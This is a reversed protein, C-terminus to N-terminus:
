LDLMYLINSSLQSLVEATDIQPGSEFIELVPITLQDPVSASISLVLHSKDASPLLVIALERENSSFSLTWALGASHDSDRLKHPGLTTKEQLSARRLWDRVSTKWILISPTSRQDARSRSAALRKRIEETTDSRATLQALSVAKIRTAPDKTLAAKCLSILRPPLNPNVILPLKATIAKYLIYKNQTDAEEKFIPTRMILDHLVAGVQYINLAEFGQPGPLEDRTLYEPSSYQATAVFRKTETQDTGNGETHEIRRLVGLDLLKLKSFTPDVVINAPKIDRHVLGREQLFLVAEVLQRLLDEVQDDRVSVLAKELNQWPCLEMLLYWTNEESIAGVELFEILNPNGHARLQEQLRVRNEEILANAGQFFAPDYIKLAVPGHQPHHVKFVAGSNGADIYLLEQWGQKECLREAIHLTLAADM